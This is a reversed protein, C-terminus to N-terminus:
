MFMWRVSHRPLGLLDLLKQVLLANDPDRTVLAHIPALGLVPGGYLLGRAEHGVSLLERLLEYGSAMALATLTPPGFPPDWLCHRSFVALSAAM